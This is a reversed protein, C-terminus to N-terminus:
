NFPKNDVKAPIKVYISYCTQLYGSAWKCIHTIKDTPMFFNLIQDGVHHTFSKDLKKPVWNLNSKVKVKVKTKM